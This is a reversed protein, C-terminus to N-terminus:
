ENAKKLKNKYEHYKKKLGDIQDDSELKLKESFQELEQIKM